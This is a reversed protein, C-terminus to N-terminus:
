TLSDDWQPYINLGDNCLVVTNCVCIVKVEDIKDVNRVIYVTSGKELGYLQKIEKLFCAECLHREKGNHKIDIVVDGYPIEKKGCKRCQFYM